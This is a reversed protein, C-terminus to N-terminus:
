ANKRLLLYQRFFPDTFTYNGDEKQIVGEALLKEVARQTTSPSSLGHLTATERSFVAQEGQALVQLVKRQYPSFRLFLEQFYDSQIDFLRELAAAVDATDISHRTEVAQQWLESCLYQIYYPINDTAQLIHRAVEETVKIGHESFRNCVFAVSDGTPIKGLRMLKGINYLARAKDRFINLLLHTKSGMFVYSVNKHFQIRSRLQREFNEGNLKNIEQFEDFVVVWRKNGSTALKEPLDIVDALNDEFNGSTFNFEFIPQGNDDFRVSPTLGRVFKSFEKLVRDVSFPRQKLIKRAYQSIFSRQDFVNFFDFYVTTIGQSKLEELVKIILSTKGYRRPAYLIVHNGDTLDRKLQNVEQVRDYFYKGSVVGGYRFPNM